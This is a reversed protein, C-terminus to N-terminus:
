KESDVNLQTELGTGLKQLQGSRTAGYLFTRESTIM